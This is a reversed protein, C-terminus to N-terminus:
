GTLEVAEKAGGDRAAHERPCYAFCRGCSVCEGRDPHYDDHAAPRSLGALRVCFTLAVFVGALVSGIKFKSIVASAEVRLEEATTTSARFTESRLTMDEM